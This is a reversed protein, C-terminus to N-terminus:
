RLLNLFTNKADDGLRKQIYVAFDSYVEAIARRLLQHKDTLESIIGARNYIRISAIGTAADVQAVVGGIRNTTTQVQDRIKFGAVAAGWGRASFGIHGIRKLILGAYGGARQLQVRARPAGERGTQRHKRGSGARWGFKGPVAYIASEPPAIKRTENRLQYSLDRGLHVISFALTRQSAKRYAVVAANLALIPSFNESVELM